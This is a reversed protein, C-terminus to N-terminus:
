GNRSRVTESVQFNSLGGVLSSQIVDISMFVTRGHTNLTVKEVNVGIDKSNRQLKFGHNSGSALSYEFNGDPSSVLFSDGEEQLVVSDVNRDANRIDKEMANLMFRASQQLEIKSTNKAIFINGALSSQVAIAFAVTLLAIAVMLESFTFASRNEM